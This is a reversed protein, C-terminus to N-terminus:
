FPFIFNNRFIFIKLNLGIRRVVSSSSMHIRRVVISSRNVRNVASSSDVGMRRVSISSSIGIRRVSAMLSNESGIIEFIFRIRKSLPVYRRPSIM